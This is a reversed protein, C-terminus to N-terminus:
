KRYKMPFLELISVKLAKALRVLELDAVWRLGAEIKAITERSIDWGSRQLVSALGAQSLGRENRLRAIERGVINKAPPEKM